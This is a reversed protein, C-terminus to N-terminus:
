EFIIRAKVPKPLRLFYQNPARYDPGLQDQQEQEKVLDGTELVREGWKRTEEEDVLQGGNRWKGIIYALSLDEFHRNPNGLPAHDDNSSGSTGSWFLHEQYWECRLLRSKRAKLNHIILGTDVWEFPFDGHTMGFVHSYFELQRRPWPRDSDLGKQSLIYRALTDFSSNSEFSDPLWLLHVFLAVMRGPIYPIIVQRGRTIKQKVNQKSKDDLQKRMLNWIVVLPPLSVFSTPEFYFARTINTSFLGGPAVKPMMYDAESLTSADDHEVWVLTWGNHVLRGNYDATHKQHSFDSKKAKDVLSTVLKSKGSVFAIQCMTRNPWIVSAGGEATEKIQRLEKLTRSFDVMYLAFRCERTAAQSVPIVSDFASHRQCPSLNGCESICPFLNNQRRQLSSIGNTQKHKHKHDLSLHSNTFNMAADTAPTGTFQATANAGFPHEKKYNWALMFQLNDYEREKRKVEGARLEEMAHELKKLTTTRDKPVILHSDASSKLQNPVGTSMSSTIAQVADTIHIWRTDDEQSFADPKTSKPAARGFRNTMWTSGDQFPGYVYPLKLHTAHVRYLSRFSPALVHFMSNSARELLQSDVTYHELSSSSATTVYVLHPPEEFSSSHPLLLTGSCKPNLLHQIPRLYINRRYFTYAYIGDEAGGMHM